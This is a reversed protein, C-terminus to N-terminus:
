PLPSPNRATHPAYVNPCYGGRPQGCAPAVVIDFPDYRWLLRSTSEVLDLVEERRKTGFHDARQFNENLTPSAPETLAACAREM